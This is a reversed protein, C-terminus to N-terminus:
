VYQRWDKDRKRSNCKRCIPRLNAPFNTGGKSLPIVHDISNYSSGCLYCLGGWMEIRNALQDHTFSGAATRDLARRRYKQLKIISPNNKKYEKQRSRNLAIQDETFKQVRTRAYNKAYEKVRDRNNEKWRKQRERIKHKSKNYYKADTIKKFEKRTSAYEKQCQKCPSVYKGRKKYFGSELDKEQGCKNCKKM